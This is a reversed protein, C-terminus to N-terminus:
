IMSLGTLKTAKKKMRQKMRTQASDWAATTVRVGDRSRVIYDCM